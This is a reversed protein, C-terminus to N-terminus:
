CRLTTTKGCASPGLLVVTEGAAITVTLTDIAAKETPANGTVVLKRLQEVRLGAPMSQRYGYTKNWEELWKDHLAQFQAFDPSWLKNVKLDFLPPQVPPAKLATMNGQETISLAQGEE